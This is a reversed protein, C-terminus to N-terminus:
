YGSRQPMGHVIEENVSICMVFPYKARRRSRLLGKFAPRAGADAMMKVAVIGPGMTDRRGRVNRGDEQLIEWVLLGSRRM